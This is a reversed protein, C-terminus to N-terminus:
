VRGPLSPQGHVRRIEQQVEPDANEATQNGRQNEFRQFPMLLRLTANLAHTVRNRLFGAGLSWDPAPKKQTAM